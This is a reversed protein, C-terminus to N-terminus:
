TWTKVRRNVKPRAEAVVGQQWEMQDLSPVREQQAVAECQQQYEEDSENPQLAQEILLDQQHIQKHLLERPHNKRDAPGQTRLLFTISALVLGLTGMCLMAAVPTAYRSDTPESIATITATVTAMSTKTFRETWTLTLMVTQKMITTRVITETMTSTLVTTKTLLLTTTSTEAMVRSPLQEGHLSSTVGFVQLGLYVLLIVVLAAMTAGALWVSRGQDLGQGPNETPQGGEDDGQERPIDM